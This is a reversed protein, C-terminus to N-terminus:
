LLSREIWVRRLCTHKVAGRNGFSAESQRVTGPASERSGEPECSRIKREDVLKTLSKIEEGSSALIEGGITKRGAM